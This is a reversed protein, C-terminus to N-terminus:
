FKKKLKAYINILFVADNKLLFRMTKAKLSLFKSNEIAKKYVNINKYYRLEKKIEKINEKLFCRNIVITMIDHVTKRFLQEEFDYKNLDITKSIQVYQLLPAEWDFYSYNSTMGSNEKRYNYYAQRHSVYISNANVILSPTLVADEGLKIRSDIELQKPVYLDKKIIKSCLSSTFYKCKNNQIAIPFIDSIIREKDYFGEKAVNKLIEIRKQYVKKIDISIIDPEYKNIIKAMDALYNSDIWDDADICCIYEGKANIAGIKRAGVLGKNQQKIVIFRKDNNAYKNCIELSNDTSGDDVIIIEIKKYTQSLISQICKGIYKEANYLPIIVSFLIRNM